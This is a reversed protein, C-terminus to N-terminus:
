KQIELQSQIDALAWDVLRRGAAKPCTQETKALRSGDENGFMAILRLEDKDLECYAGVPLHCNGGIRKLFDREVNVCLDDEPESLADLKELLELNDESVELALAGQAPAPIMERYSLYQSIEGERELRKMGAAALVIGDLIGQGQDPDPLDVPVGEYLKRLRTDINGRIGVIKLDPRLKLLQYKRRKSGTGILAGKPLDELSAASKLVLVDRPDEREWVRAFTLGKEPEEPMDKMSHVAMHIRGELLGEEIEKVFIGKSGIQDLAKKQEMDGTTKIIVLEFDDEPYARKLKHIVYNTQVLALKSGRSGIFYQM